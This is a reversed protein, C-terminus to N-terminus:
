AASCVRPTFVPGFSLRVYGAACEGYASGAVTAVGLDRFLVEVAEVGDAGWPSADLLAYFTADPPVVGPIGLIQRRREAYAERAASVIEEAHELAALTAWQGVVSACTAVHQQIRDMPELLARPAAAWGLRLGTMAFRKSSGDIVVTRERMGPLAAISPAREVFELGRYIEDSVM